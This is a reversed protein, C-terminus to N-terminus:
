QAIMMYLYYLIYLRTFFPQIPYQRLVEDIFCSLETCDKLMSLTFVTDKNSLQPHSLIAQRVKDAEDPFKWFAYVLNTLSTATSDYAAFALGIVTDLKDDITYTPDGGNDFVSNSEILGKLLCENNWENNETLKIAENYKPSLM